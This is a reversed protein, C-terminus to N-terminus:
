ENLVHILYRSYTNPLAAGMLTPFTCDCLTRHESPGMVQNLHKAIVM